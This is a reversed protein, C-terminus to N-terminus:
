RGAITASSTCHNFASLNFILEPFSCGGTITKRCTIALTNVEDFKEKGSPFAIFIIGYCSQRARVDHTFNAIRASASETLIFLFVTMKPKFLRKSKLRKKPINTFYHFLVVVFVADTFGCYKRPM